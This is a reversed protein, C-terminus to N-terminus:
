TIPGSSPLNQVKVDEAVDDGFGSALAYHMGLLSRATRNLELSKLELGYDRKLIHGLADIQEQTPYPLYSADYKAM